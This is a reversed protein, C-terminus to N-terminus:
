SILLTFGRFNTLLSLMTEQVQRLQPRVHRRPKQLNVDRNIREKRKGKEVKRNLNQAIEPSTGLKKVGGITASKRRCEM